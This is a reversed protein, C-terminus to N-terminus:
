LFLGELKRLIRPPNYNSPSSKAKEKKRKQFLQTQTGLGPNQPNKEGWLLLTICGGEQENSMLDKEFSVTQM